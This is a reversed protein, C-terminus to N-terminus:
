ACHRCRAAHPVTDLREPSIDEGCAVCVGFTGAEIRDLAAQIQKIESLGSQGLSELVEDGERETARDEIDQTAPEDLDHEIEVLRTDLEELRAILRAKYANVDVM